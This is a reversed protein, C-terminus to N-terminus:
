PGTEEAKVLDDNAVMTPDAVKQDGKLPTPSGTQPDDGVSPVAAGLAMGVAGGVIASSNGGDVDQAGIQAANLHPREGGGLPVKTNNWGRNGPLVPAPACTNFTANATVVCTGIRDAWPGCLWTGTAPNCCASSNPPTAQGLNYSPPEYIYQQQPTTTDTTPLPASAWLDCCAFSTYTCNCACPKLSPAPAPFPGTPPPSSGDYIDEGSESTESIVTGNRATHYIETGSISDKIQQGDTFAEAPSSGSRLSGSDYFTDKTGTKVSITSGDSLPTNTVNFVELNTQNYYEISGDSLTTTSNAHDITHIDTGITVHTGNPLTSNGWSGGPLLTPKTVDLTGNVAVPVDSSDQLGLSTSNDPPVGTESFVTNSEGTSSSGNTSNSAINGNVVSSLNAAGASSEM